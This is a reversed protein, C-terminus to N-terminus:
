IYNINVILQNHIFLNDDMIHPYAEDLWNFAKLAIVPKRFFFSQRLGASTVFQVGSDVSDQTLRNGKAKVSDGQKNLKFASYMM